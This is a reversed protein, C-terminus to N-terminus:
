RVKERTQFDRHKVTVKLFDLKKNKKRYEAPPHNLVNIFATFIDKLLDCTRIQYDPTDHRALSMM